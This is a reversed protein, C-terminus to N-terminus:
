KSYPIVVESSDEGVTEVLTYGQPELTVTETETAAQQETRDAGCAALAFALTAILFRRFPQASTGFASPGFASPGFSLRM